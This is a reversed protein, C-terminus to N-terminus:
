AVKREQLVGQVGVAACIRQHVDARGTGEWGKYIYDLSGKSCHTASPGTFGTKYLYVATGMGEECLVSLQGQKLPAHGNNAGGRYLVGPMVERYDRIGHFQGGAQMIKEQAFVNQNELLFVISLLFLFYIKM